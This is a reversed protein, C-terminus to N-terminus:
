LPAGPVDFIMLPKRESLRWIAFTNGFRKMAQEDKLMKGFDMMYNSWGTFSSTFMVDLRPMARVDYDYGDAYKGTKQAGQLNDDTPM